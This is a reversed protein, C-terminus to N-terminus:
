IPMTKILLAAIDYRKLTISSDNVNVGQNM